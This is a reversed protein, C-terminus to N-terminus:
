MVFMVTSYIKLKARFATKDKRKAIGTGSVYALSSVLM